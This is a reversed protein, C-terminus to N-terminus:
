SLCFVKELWKIYLIFPLTVNNMIVRIQYINQLPPPLLRANPTCHMFYPEFIPHLFEVNERIVALVNPACIRVMHMRSWWGQKACFHGNGKVKCKIVLIPSTYCSKAYYLRENGGFFTYHLFERYFYWFHLPFLLEHIVM